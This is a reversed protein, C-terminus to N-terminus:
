YYDNTSTSVQMYSIITGGGELELIEIDMVAIGTEQLGRYTYFPVQSRYKKGDYSIDVWYIEMGDDIIARRKAYNALVKKYYRNKVNYVASVDLENFDKIYDDASFVRYDTTNSLESSDFDPGSFQELNFGDMGEQGTQGTQEAQQEAQQEIQQVATEPTKSKKMGILKGIVVITSIAFILGIVLKPSIKTKTDINDLGSGPRKQRSDRRERIPEEQEFEEDVEINQDDDYFDTSSASDDVFKDYDIPRGVGKKLAM